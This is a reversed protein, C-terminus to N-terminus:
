PGALAPRPPEPSARAPPPRSPTRAPVLGCGSGSLRSPFPGLGASGEGSAASQQGQRRQRRPRVSKIDASLLKEVEASARLGGRVRKSQPLENEDALLSAIMADGVLETVENVSSADMVRKVTHRPSSLTPTASRRKPRAPRRSSSSRSRGQLQSTVLRLGGPRLSDPQRHRPCNGDGQGQRARVAQPQHRGASSWTPASRTTGPARPSLKRRGSRTRPRGSRKRRRPRSRSAATPACGAMGRRAEQARGGGERDARGGSPSTPPSSSTPSSPSPPAERRRRDVQHEVLCGAARAADVEAEGFRLTPNDTHTYPRAALHRDGLDRRKKSDAIVDNLKVASPDIM